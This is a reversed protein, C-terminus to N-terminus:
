CIISKLQAYRVLNGMARALKGLTALAPLAWKMNRGGGDKQGGVQKM